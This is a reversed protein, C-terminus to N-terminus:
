NIRSTYVTEGSPSKVGRGFRIMWLDVAKVVQAVAAKDGQELLEADVDVLDELFPRVERASWQPKAAFLRTIRERPDGPMQSRFLPNLQTRHRPVGGEAYMLHAEMPATVYALDRVLSCPIQASAWPDPGDPDDPRPILQPPMTAQLAQAFDAAMWPRMDEALFIQEALFRQVRAQDVAYCGSADPLPRGFRRLVCLLAEDPAEAGMDNQLAPLLLGPDYRGAPWLNEAQTALLLRLLEVCYGPDLARWHGEQDRFAPVEDLARQLARPGAPVNARLVADGVRRGGEDLIDFQSGRFAGRADWALVEHVRAHVNPRARQLELTQNIKSRLLLTDSSGDRTLLYLNNSTHATHLDFTAETPDVLTATSTPQGLVRLTCADQTELQAALEPTLELLRYEEPYGDSASVAFIGGDASTM